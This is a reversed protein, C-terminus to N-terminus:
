SGWSGLLRMYHARSFAGPDPIHEINMSGRMQGLSQYENDELWAALGERLSTVYEVGNKLLASSLQVCDAGTM